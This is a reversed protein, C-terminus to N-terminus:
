EERIFPEVGHAEMITDQIYYSVASPTITKPQFANTTHNILCVPRNVVHMRIVYLKTTLYCVNPM